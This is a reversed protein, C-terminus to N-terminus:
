VGKRRLTQLLSQFELLLRDISEQKKHLSKLDKDQSASLQAICDNLLLINNEDELKPHKQLFGDM